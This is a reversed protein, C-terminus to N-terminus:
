KLLIKLKIIQIYLLISRKGHRLKFQDIYDKYKEYLSKIENKDYGKKLATVLKFVISSPIRYEKIARIELDSLKLNPDNLLGLSSSISKEIQNMNFSSLSDAKHFIRYNTLYEKVLSIKNAKSLAKVLFDTDESWNRGIEFRLKNKEILSSEILFSAIQHRNSGILYHYLFNKEEFSTSLKSVEDGLVVKTACCVIDSNEAKAKQIMKKAYNKDLFDDSDLFCIYDDRSKDLGNNRAASVGSNKQYIYKINKNNKELNKIIRASDDKSGDDVVYINIDKYTQELVSKICKEIFKENNYVPIIVGISM